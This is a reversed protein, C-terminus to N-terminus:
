DEITAMLDAKNGILTIENLANAQKIRTIADLKWSELEMCLRDVKKVDFMAETTIQGTVTAYGQRTTVAQRIEKLEVLRQNVFKVYELAENITALM